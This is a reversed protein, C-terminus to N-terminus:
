VVLPLSDNRSTGTPGAEDLLHRRAWLRALAEQVQSEPDGAEGVFRHAFAVGEPTVGKYTGSSPDWWDFPPVAPSSRAASTGIEILDEGGAAALDFRQASDTNNTHVLSAATWSGVLDAVTVAEPGTEKDSGSCGATLLAVPVATIFPRLSGQQLPKSGGV